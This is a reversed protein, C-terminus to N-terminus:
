RRNRADSTAKHQIVRMGPPANGLLEVASRFRSAFDRMDVEATIATIDIHKPLLNAIVRVLVDPQEVAVRELATSGHKEWVLALDELYASGLKSRAGQPRGPGPKTGNQFRGREDREIIETNSMGSIYEWM